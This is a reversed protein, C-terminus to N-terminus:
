WTPSIALTANFRKIASGSYAEPTKKRYVQKRKSGFWTLRSPVPTLSATSLGRRRLKHTLRISPHIWPMVLRDLDERVSSSLNSTIGLISSISAPATKRSEYLVQDM